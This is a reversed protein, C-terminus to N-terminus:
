ELKAQHLNKTSRYDLMINRKSDSNLRESDNVEFKRNYISDADDYM